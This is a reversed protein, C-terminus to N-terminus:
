VRWYDPQWQKVSQKITRASLEEKIARDILEILEEDAAFRLAIIQQKSLLKEIPRFSSGTLEFYRQRMEMRIIRDQNKTAYIRAVIPMLFLVFGALVLLISM